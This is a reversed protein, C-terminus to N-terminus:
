GASSKRILNQCDFLHRVHGLSAAVALHVVMGGPKCMCVTLTKPSCSDYHNVSLDGLSLSTKCTMWCTLTPTGVSCLWSGWTSCHSWSSDSHARAGSHSGAQSTLFLPHLNPNSERTPNSPGSGARDRGPQDGPPPCSFQKLLTIVRLFYSVTLDDM